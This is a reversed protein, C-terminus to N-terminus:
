GGEMRGRRGESGREREEDRGGGELGGQVHLSSRVKGPCVCDVRNEAAKLVRVTGLEHLQRPDRTTVM